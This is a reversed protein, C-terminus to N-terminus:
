PSFVHFAYGGIGSPWYQLERHHLLKLPSYIYKVTMLLGVACCCELGVDVGEEVYIYIHVTHANLSLYIHFHIGLISFFFM